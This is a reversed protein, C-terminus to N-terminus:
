PNKGMLQVYQSLASVAHQAYDLRLNGDQQSAHFGGLLKPRYWDAFHKTNGQSYQLRAVFQLALEATSKYREHRKPDGKLQALRCGEVLAEAASATSIDPMQAVAKGDQSAM